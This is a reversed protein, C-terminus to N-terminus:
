NRRENIASVLAAFVAYRDASLTRAHEIYAAIPIASAPAPLSAVIRRL